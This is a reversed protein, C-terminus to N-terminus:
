VILRGAYDIAMELSSSSAKGTGAIDFATGHDVSTRIIPLGLTVNVGEVKSFGAGGQHRFGIVKVPIHGQDHYMVVAGDFTGDVLQPFLTDPPFPGLVLMGNRKAREIAPTIEEIEERGFLGHEGAHPNLGAVAVSRRKIGLRSLADHLLEIVRYVRESNVRDCAERLSVHTSVHAVCVSDHVLMMSYDKTGTREALIETHGAYTFGGLHIAEKNLPNTVIADVSGDLALDIASVLSEYAARGYKARLSGFSFGAEPVNRLDIVPLYKPAKARFKELDNSDVTELSLVPAVIRAAREIASRDGVAVIVDHECDASLRRAAVQALLEPGVGSPDGMTVAILRNPHKDTKM